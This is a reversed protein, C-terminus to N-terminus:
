RDSKIAIAHTLTTLAEAVMNMRWQIEAQLYLADVSGQLLEKCSEQADEYRRCRILAEM